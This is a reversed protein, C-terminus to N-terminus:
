FVFLLFPNEDFYGECGEVGAGNELHGEDWGGQAVLGANGFHVEGAGDLVDPVRVGDLGFGLGISSASTEAFAVFDDGHDGGAM